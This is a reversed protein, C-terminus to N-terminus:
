TSINEVLMDIAAEKLSLIYDLERFKEDRYLM